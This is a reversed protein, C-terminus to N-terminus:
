VIRITISSEDFDVPEMQSPKLNKFRIGIKNYIRAIMESCVMGQKDVDIGWDPDESKGILRILFDWVLQWWAYKTGVLKYAAKVLLQKDKSSLENVVRFLGVSYEPTLYVGIDDIHVGVETDNLIQRDGLCLVSHSWNSHTVGAIIISLTSSKNRVLLIDGCQINHLINNQM